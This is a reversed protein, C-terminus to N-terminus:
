IGSNLLTFNRKEQGIRHKNFTPTDFLHEPPPQQTNVEWFTPLQKSRFDLLLFHLSIESFYSSLYTKQPLIFLQHFLDRSTEAM